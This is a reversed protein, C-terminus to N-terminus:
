FNFTRCWNIPLFATQAGSAEEAWCSPNVRTLPDSCVAWSKACSRGQGLGGLDGNKVGFWGLDRNKVGFWDENSSHSSPPLPPVLVDGPPVPLTPIKKEEIKRTKRKFNATKKWARQAPVSHQHTQGERGSRTPNIGQNTM